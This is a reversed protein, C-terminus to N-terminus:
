IYLFQSITQNHEQTFPKKRPKVKKEVEKLKALAEYKLIYSVQLHVCM